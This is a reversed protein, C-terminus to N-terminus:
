ENIKLNLHKELLYKMIERKEDVSCKFINYSSLYLWIKYSKKNYTFYAVSNKRYNIYDDDYHEIEIGDLLDIISAEIPHVKGKLEYIKILRLKNM